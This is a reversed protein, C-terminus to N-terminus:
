GYGPFPNTLTESDNRIVYSTKKECDLEKRAMIRCSGILNLEEAGLSMNQCAPTEFNSEAIRSSGAESRKKIFV